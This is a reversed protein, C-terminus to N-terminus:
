VVGGSQGRQGLDVVRQRAPGAQPRRELAHQLKEVSSVADHAARDGEQAGIGSQEMHFRGFAEGLLSLRGAVRDAFSHRASDDLAAFRHDDRTGALLRHKEIARPALVELASVDAEDAHWDLGSFFRDAGDADIQGELLPAVVLVVDAEEADHGRHNSLGDPDAVQHVRLTLPEDIFIDM